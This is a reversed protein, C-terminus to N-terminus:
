TAPPAIGQNIQLQPTLTIQDVLTGSPVAGKGVQTTLYATVPYDGFIWAAVSLETYDSTTQFEAYVYQSTPGGLTLFGGSVGEPVSAITAATACFAFLLLCGPLKWM